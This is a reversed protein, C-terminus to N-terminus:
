EDTFDYVLYREMLPMFENKVIEVHEIHTLYAQMAKESPFTMYLGIDFSDDVVDRESPIAQGVRLERIGPIGELKKSGEIIRQRHEANGPEKLWVLVVHIVGPPEDEEYAFVAPSLYLLCMLCVPLLKKM